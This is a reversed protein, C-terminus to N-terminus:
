AHRKKLNEIEIKISKLARHISIRCSEPKIELISSIDKYSLNLDYRLYLIEQQSPTLNKLSRILANKLEEDYERSIIVDEISYEPRFEPRFSFYNKSGRKKRGMLFFVEHKVSSLLYAPLNEVKRTHKKARILSLFVNQIADEVIQSDQCYKMGYNLMLTYYHNYVVALSASSGSKVFEDWHALCIQKKNSCDKM